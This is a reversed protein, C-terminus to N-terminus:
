AQRNKPMFIAYKQLLPRMALAHYIRWDCLNLADAFNFRAPGGSLDMHFLESAESLAFVATQIYISWGSRKM